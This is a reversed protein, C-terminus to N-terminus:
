EINKFNTFCRPLSVEPTSGGVFVDDLYAVTGSLVAIIKDVAAKFLAAASSLGYPLRQLRILDKNTVLYIAESEEAVSLQLYM